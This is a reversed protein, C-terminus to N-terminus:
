SEQFRSKFFYCPIRFCTRDYPLDNFLHQNLEDIRKPFYRDTNFVPEGFNIREYGSELIKFEIELGSLKQSGHVIDDPYVM